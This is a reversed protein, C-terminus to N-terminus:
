WPSTVGRSRLRARFWDLAEVDHAGNGVERIMRVELAGTNGLVLRGLQVPQRQGTLPDRAVHILLDLASVAQLATTAPDIRALAGM